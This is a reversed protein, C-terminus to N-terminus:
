PVRGVATRALDLMTQDPVPTDGTEGTAGDLVICGSHVAIQINGEGVVLMGGDGIGDVRKQVDGFLDREIQTYLLKCMAVAPEAASLHAPSGVGVYNCVGGGGNDYKVPSVAVGLVSAAEDATILLCPDFNLQVPDGLGAAGAPASSSSAPATSGGSPAGPPTGTASGPANSAGPSSSCAAVVLTLMAGVLAAGISTRM